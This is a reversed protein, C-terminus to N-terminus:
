IYRYINTSGEKLSGYENRNIIIIIIIIIITIIIIGKFIKSKMAAEAPTMNIGASKNKSSSEEKKINDPVSSSSSSSSSSKPQLGYYEYLKFLLDDKEVCGEISLGVALVMSRLEKVNRQPLDILMKEAREQRLADASARRRNNNDIEKKMEEEWINNWEKDFYKSNMEKQKNDDDNNNNNNNKKTNINSTTSIYKKILQERTMTDILSSSFGCQKLLKRLTENSIDSTDSAQSKSYKPQHDNYSRASNSGDNNSRGGRRGIPPEERDRKPIYEYAKEEKRKGFNFPENRKFDYDEKKYEKRPSKRPSIDNVLLKVHEYSSQIAHFIISTDFDPNKDPHYRLAAKRYAKKVENKNYGNVMSGLGLAINPYKKITNFDREISKTLRQLLEGLLKSANNSTSNTYMNKSEEVLM